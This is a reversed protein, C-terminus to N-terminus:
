GPREGGEPGAPPETFNFNPDPPQEPGRREESHRHFRRALAEEDAQRQRRYSRISWWRALSFLGFVIALWGGLGSTGGLRGTIFIFAALAFWFLAFILSM